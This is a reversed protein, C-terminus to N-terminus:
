GMAFTVVHKRAAPEGTKTGERGTAAAPASSGQERLAKNKDGM